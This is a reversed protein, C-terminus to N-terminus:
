GRRRHKGNPMHCGHHLWEGRHTKRGGERPQSTHNYDARTLLETGGRIMRKGCRACIGGCKKWAHEREADDAKKFAALKARKEADRDVSKPFLLGAANHNIM